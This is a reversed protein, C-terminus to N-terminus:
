GPRHGQEAWPPPSRSRVAADRASRDEIAIQFFCDETDGLQFGYLLEFARLTAAYCKIHDHHGYWGHQDHTIIVDPRLRRIHEAIRGAVEDLSAACLSDPHHNDQSGVMGSDRYGLFSVSAMGLATAARKLEATRLDAISDGHELRNSDVIGAEGRTACLYHVKAGEAAYKALTGAPGHSEDDPHAFIALLTQMIMRKTVGESRGLRINIAILDACDIM